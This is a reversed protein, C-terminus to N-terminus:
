ACASSEERLLIRERAWSSFKSSIWEETCMDPCYAPAPSCVWGVGRHVRINSHLGTMAAKELRLFIDYTLFFLDWPGEGLEVCPVRMEAQKWCCLSASDEKAKGVLSSALTIHLTEHLAKWRWIFTLYVSFYVSAAFNNKILHFYEEDLKM